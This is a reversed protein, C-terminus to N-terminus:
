SKQGKTKLYLDKIQLFNDNGDFSLISGQARTSFIKELIELASTIEPFPAQIEECLFELMECLESVESFGYTKGTGKLQHFERTIATINKEQWQQKMRQLRQPFQQLYEQQLDRMMEDYKTKDSSKMESLRRKTSTVAAFNASYSIQFLQVGFLPGM